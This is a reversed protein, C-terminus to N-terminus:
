FEGFQFNDILRVEGCYAAICVSCNEDVLEVEQLSVNNVIALYELELSGKKFFNEMALKLDHAM